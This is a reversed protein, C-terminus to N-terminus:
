LRLKRPREKPESPPPPAAPPQFHQTGIGLVRMTHYCTRDGHTNFVWAPCDCSLVGAEDVKVTYVKGNKSSKSPYTAVEAYTKAM